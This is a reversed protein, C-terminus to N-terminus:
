WKFLNPLDQIGSAMYWNEAEFSEQNQLLNKGDAM